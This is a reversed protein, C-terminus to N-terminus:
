NLKKAVHESYFEENKIALIPGIKKIIKGATYVSNWGAENRTGKTKIGKYNYILETAIQPNELMVLLTYKPEKSPFVSIFTNLNENKNGYKQSTGTKGGVDYGYINAFKATGEEETVVKRLINNIKKSTSASIIKQREPYNNKKIITPKVMHGGNTLAAYTATAQLPTVAIGHGFSITELKCKNWAFSLPTGVEELEFKPTNLLNTKKIFAKYDKEGIKKALMLTGVNSSRILIDEVSLDNPFKKIDSIEHVSCKVRKPINKIVTEPSVLNKELAIAITFTKFISGLEYIGKTIKNIYNEDTISARKNINYNPLSVLSLVEGNNVNMLLAAGGTASFTKIANNLEEDIIHQINTDLTLQLPKDILGKSKLEKDFYKEVGSIGYNDYDVQGLIHSYLNAHTYIRSEFPEFIIGKEGLAWLKEKDKQDLGRKLYFYRKQNLSEEIKKISLEPFNLRIKILFNEKNKILNPKVAAHFSKVNRSIIIGNRDIVDRRLTTFNSSTNNQNYVEFKKLSVFIIKISFITILSFFLFFLLYIRDQSINSNKIKKHKQNTELYDEFYFSKQNIDLKKNKRSKKRM